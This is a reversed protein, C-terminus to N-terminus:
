GGSGFWGLLISVSNQGQGGERATIPIVCVCKGQKREKRNMEEGVNCKKEKRGTKERKKKNGKKEQKREENGRRSQTRNENGEKEGQNM